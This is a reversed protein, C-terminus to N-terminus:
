ALRISDFYFKIGNSLSDTFHLMSPHIPIGSPKNVILIWEDEFLIDLDSNGSIATKRGVSGVIYMHLENESDLDYYSKNLKKAIEGATKKMDALNDLLINSCFTEFDNLLGL